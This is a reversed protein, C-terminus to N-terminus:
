SRRRRRRGGLALTGGALLLALGAGLPWLGPGGTNPLVSPHQQKPPSVAVVPAVPPAPPANVCVKGSESDRLLALEGSVVTGVNTIVASCSGAATQTNTSYVPSDYTGGEADGWTIVWAPDFAHHDDTVTITKDTSSEDDFTYGDSGSDTYHAPDTDAVLAETAQPYDTMSWSATATNTGASVPGDGLQCSYSYDAGGAPVSVTAPDAADGITCGDLSEDIVATMAADNPNAVHITGDVVYSSTVVHDQAVHIRYYLSTDGGADVTKLLPAGATTGDSWPGTAAPAIQKDITWVYTASYHGTADKTVVLPLWAKRNAFGVPVTEQESVSGSWSDTADGNLLYGPPPVIETVTYDGPEAQNITVIGDGAGDAVYIDCEAPQAPLDAQVGDFVCYTDSASGGPRPDGTIAFVAGAVYAPNGPTSTDADTKTIVLKGCTSPTDVTLPGVYDKMASTWSNGTTTRMQMTGFEGSCGGEFIPLASIDISGEGFQGDASV